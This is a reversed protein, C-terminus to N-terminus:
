IASEMGGSFIEKKYWLWTKEIGEEIGVKSRYQILKNTLTMDPARREPSGEIPPLTQVSLNKESCQICTEVVHEMTVEPDQTGVNLTLGSCNNSEMIRMLMEVADDIYCFARTHEASPVNIEGPEETEWIRQLQEPIIHAMGMRPGFINHPRFITYPLASHHCLTEGVIKSLMYTTRPEYLNTLAIGSTEPTPITLEFEQLTGAYVESTSAFLFRRLRQQRRAVEIMHDLMLVNNLMTQYPMNVVHKVGIIAALHIIM